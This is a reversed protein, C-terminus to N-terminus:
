HGQQVTWSERLQGIVDTVTEYVSEKSCRYRDRAWDLVIPGRIQSAHHPFAELYEETLAVGRPFIHFHLQSQEEGFQACYIRLPNVTEKVLSTVTALLPGLNEVSRSPLADLSQVAALPSVILYGPVACSYCHEVLFDESRGIEFNM